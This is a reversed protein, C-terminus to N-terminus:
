LINLTSIFYVFFYIIISICEYYYNINLYSYNFRLMGQHELNMKLDQSTIVEVLATETQIGIEDRRTEGGIEKVEKVEIVETEKEIDIETEEIMMEAGIEIVDIMATIIVMMMMKLGLNNRKRHQIIYVKRGQKKKKEPFYEFM